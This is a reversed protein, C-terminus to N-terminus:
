CINFTQNLLQIVSRTYIYILIMKVIDGMSEVRLGRELHRRAAAIHAPLHVSIKLFLMDAPGRYGFISKKYCMEVSVIAPSSTLQFRKNDNKVAHKM